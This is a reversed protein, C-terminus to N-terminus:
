PFVLKGPLRCMEVPYQYDPMPWGYRKRFKMRHINAHEKSEWGMGSKPIFEPPHNEVRLYGTRVAKQVM